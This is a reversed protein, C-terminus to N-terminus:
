PRRGERRNFVPELGVGVLTFGVIALTIALGAPLIWWLWANSFYLDQRRAGRDLITGWSVHLPDGLGLFALGSEIFIATAAWDIWRAAIVPAVAPALHRRVVYLPGGGYGQAAQVFGRSRLTLAQSRVTRAIPPWGALAIVFIVVQETPGALATILIALPIGPVALFFDVTRMALTDVVGGLLGALMGVLVGVVVAASAALVAVTMSYRTAWIVQSFIDHGLDDTGLLFRGSPHLFTDGPKKNLGYPALAPALLAVALFIGVLVVGAALLPSRLTDWRRSGLGELAARRAMALPNSALRPRQEASGPGESM